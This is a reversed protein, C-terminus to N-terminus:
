LETDFKLSGDNSLRVIVNTPSIPDRFLIQDCSYRDTRSCHALSLARQSLFYYFFFDLTAAFYLSHPARTRRAQKITTGSRQRRSRGGVEEKIEVIAIYPIKM